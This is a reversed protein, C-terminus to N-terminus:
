CRKVVRLLFLRRWGMSSSARGAFVALATSSSVGDDNCATSPYTAARLRQARNRARSSTITDGLDDLSPARYGGTLFGRNNPANPSMRLSVELALGMARTTLLQGQHHKVVM